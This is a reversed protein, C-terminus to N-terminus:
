VKNFFLGRKIIGVARADVKVAIKKTDKSM